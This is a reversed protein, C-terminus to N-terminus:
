GPYLVVGAEIRGPDVEPAVCVAAPDVLVVGREQLRRKVTETKM